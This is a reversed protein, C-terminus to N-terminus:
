SNVFVSFNFINSLKFHTDINGPYKVIEVLIWIHFICWYKGSYKIIKGSIWNPSSPLSLPAPRASGACMFERQSM